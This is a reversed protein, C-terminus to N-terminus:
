QTQASSTTPPLAGACRLRALSGLPPLPQTQMARLVTRISDIPIALSVLELKDQLPSPLPRGDIQKWTGEWLPDRHVGNLGVLAGGWFLGGGSMGKEVLSTYALRYGGELPSALLPVLLGEREQYSSQSRPKSPTLPYGTAVVLPLTEGAVQAVAAATLEPAVTQPQSGRSLWLLALDLPAAVQAPRTAVVLAPRVNRDATTVCVANLGQIVHRNTAVWYGGPSEALIVGSGLPETQDRWIQVTSALRLARLQGPSPTAEAVPPPSSATTPAPQAAAASPLWAVLPMLPLLGRIGASLFRVM